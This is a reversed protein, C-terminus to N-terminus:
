IKPREKSPDETHNSSYKNLFLDLLLDKYASSFKADTPVHGGQHNFDNGGLSVVVLDPLPRTEYPWREKSNTMLTRNILAPLPLPGLQWQEAAAANQTVGMGASAQFSVQAQFRKALDGGVTSDCNDYEWGALESYVDSMDRTGDVCYGATDSAGIFDLIREPVQEFPLLEIGGEQDFGYVKVISPDFISNALGM